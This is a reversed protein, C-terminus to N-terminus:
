YYMTALPLCATVGRVASGFKVWFFFLNRNRGGRQSTRKIEGGKGVPHPIQPPCIMHLCSKGVMPMCLGVNEFGQDVQSQM